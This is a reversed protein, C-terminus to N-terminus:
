ASSKKFRNFVSYGETKTKTAGDEKLLKKKQKLAEKIEAQKREYKVGKKRNELRGTKNRGKKKYKPEFEM